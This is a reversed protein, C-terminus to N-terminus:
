FAFAVRSFIDSLYCTQRHFFLILSVLKLSFTTHCETGNKLELRNFLPVIRKIGPMCLSSIATDAIHYRLGAHKNQKNTIGEQVLTYPFAKKQISWRNPM